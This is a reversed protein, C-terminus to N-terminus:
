LFPISEPGDLHAQPLAIQRTIPWLEAAHLAALLTEPPRATRRTAPLWDRGEAIVGLVAAEGFERGKSVEEALYIALWRVEEDDIALWRRVWTSGFRRELVLALLTTSDSTM